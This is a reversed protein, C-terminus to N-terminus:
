AHTAACHRGPAAGQVPAPDFDVPRDFGRWGRREVAAHDGRVQCDDGAKVASARVSAPGDGHLYAVFDVIGRASDWHSPTYCRKHWGPLVV